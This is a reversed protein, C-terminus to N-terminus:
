YAQLLKKDLNIKLIKIFCLSCEIFHKHMFSYNKEMKLVFSKLTMTPKTFM